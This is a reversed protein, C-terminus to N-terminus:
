KQQTLVRLSFIIFSHDYAMTFVLRRFHVETLAWKNQIGLFRFLALLYVYLIESSYYQFLFFSSVPEFFSLLSLIVSLCYLCLCVYLSLSMRTCVFVHMCLCAYLSMSVFVYMCLRIYLGLSMWVFVYICLCVHFCAYFSMCVFFVYM